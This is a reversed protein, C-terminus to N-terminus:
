LRPQAMVRQVVAKGAQGVSAQDLVAQRAGHAQRAVLRVLRDGYQEHVEVVELDDVVAQTMGGAVDQQDRHSLPQATCSPRIKAPATFRNLTSASRLSARSRSWSM